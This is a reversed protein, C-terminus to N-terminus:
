GEMPLRFQWITSNNTPESITADSWNQIKMQIRYHVDDTYPETPSEKLGQVISKLSDMDAKLESDSQAAFDMEQELEQPLESGAYLDVLKKYFSGDTYKM